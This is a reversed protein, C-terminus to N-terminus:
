DNQEGDKGDQRTDYSGKPNFKPLGNRKGNKRQEELWKEYWPKLTYVPKEENM